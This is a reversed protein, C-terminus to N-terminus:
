RCYINTVSFMVTQHFSPTLLANNTRSGHALQPLSTSWMEMTTMYFAGPQPTQSALCRHFPDRNVPSGPPSSMRGEKVFNTVDDPDQQFPHQQEEEEEEEEEDQGWGNDEELVEDENIKKKQSNL